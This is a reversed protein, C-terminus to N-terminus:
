QEQKRLHNIFEDPNFDMPCSTAQNANQKQYTRPGYGHHHNVNQRQNYPPGYGGHERITEIDQDIIHFNRKLQMGEESTLAIGKRTPNSEHSMKRIHVRIEDM